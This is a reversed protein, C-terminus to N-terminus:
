FHPKTTFHAQTIADHLFQFKKKKLWSKLLVHCSTFNLMYKNKVFESPLTLCNHLSFSSSFKRADNSITPSIKGSLSPWRIFKMFYWNDINGKYFLTNNTYQSFNPAFLGNNKIFLFLDVLREFRLRFGRMSVLFIGPLPWWKTFLWM